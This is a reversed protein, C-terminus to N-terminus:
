DRLIRHMHALTVLDSERTTSFISYGHREYFAVNGVTGMSTTLEIRRVPPLAQELTRLLASGIGRGQYGPDVALTRITCTDGDLLGRVAGILVDGEKATFALQNAIHDHLRALTEMLPPIQMNQSRRGEEAFARLQLDLMAEADAPVARQITYRFTM